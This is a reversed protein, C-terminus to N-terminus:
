IFYWIAALVAVLGAVFCNVRILKQNRQSKKHQILKSNIDELLDLKGSMEVNILHKHHQIIDKYYVSKNELEQLDSAVQNLRTVNRTIEEKHKDATVQLNSSLEHKMKAIDGKLLDLYSTILELQVLSPNEVPSFLIAKQKMMLKESIVSMINVLPEYPNHKNKDNGSKEINDIINDINLLYNVLRDNEIIQKEDYRFEFGGSDLISYVIAESSELNLPMNKCESKDEDLPDDEGQIEVSKDNKRQSLPPEPWKFKREEQRPTTRGSGGGSGGNIVNNNNNNNNSNSNSNNNPQQLQLSSLFERNLSTAISNLPSGSGLNLKGSDQKFFQDVLRNKSDTRSHTSTKAVAHSSGNRYSTFDVFSGNNVNPNVGKKLDRLFRPSTLLEYNNPPSELMGGGGGGGNKNRDGNAALNKMSIGSNKSSALSGNFDNFDEGNKLRRIQGSQKRDYNFYGGGGNNSDDLSSGLPPTTPLHLKSGSSNSRSHHGMSIGLNRLNDSSKSFFNNNNTTTTTGAPTQSSPSSINLLNTSSTSRRDKHNLNLSTLNTESQNKSKFLSSLRNGSNPSRQLKASQQPSRPISSSSSKLEAANLLTQKQLNNKPPKLSTPSAISSKSKPIRPRAEIPESANNSGSSTNNGGYFDKKDSSSSSVGNNTKTNDNPELTDSADTNSNNLNGLAAATTTDCNNHSSNLEDVEGLSKFELSNEQFYGDLSGTHNGSMYSPTPKTTTPKASTNTNPTSGENDFLDVMRPSPVRQQKSPSRKQSTM